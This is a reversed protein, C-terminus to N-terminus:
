LLAAGASAADTIHLQMFYLSQMVKVGFKRVAEEKNVRNETQCALVVGLHILACLLEDLDSLDDHMLVIYCVISVIVNGKKM